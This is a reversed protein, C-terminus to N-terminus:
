PETKANVFPTLNKPKEKPPPPPPVSCPFWLPLLSPSHSGSPFSPVERHLCFVMKLRGTGSDVMCFKVTIKKIMYSVLIARISYLIIHLLSPSTACPHTKCYLKSSEPCSPHRFKIHGLRSPSLLGHSSAPPPFLKPQM